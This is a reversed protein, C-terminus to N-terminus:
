TRTPPPPHSNVTYVYIGAAGRRLVFHADVNWPAKDKAAPTFVHNCSVDVMDPTQKSISYLATPCTRTAPAAMAPSFTSPAM